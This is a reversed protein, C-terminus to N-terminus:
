PAEEQVESPHPDPLVAPADLSQAIEKGNLSFMGAITVLLALDAQSFANVGAGCVTLAGIVQRGTVLPICLASRSENEWGKLMWRRDGATDSVIAAKCHVVSWGALGKAYTPLLCKAADPTTWITGDQIVAADRLRGGSDLLLASGSAARM